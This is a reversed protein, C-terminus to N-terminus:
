PTLPEEQLQLPVREPRPAVALAELVGEGAVVEGIQTFDAWTPAPRLLLVFRPSNWEPTEPQLLLLGARLSVAPAERRIWFGPHGYGTNSPDGLYLAIGPERGYVTMGEYWGQQALVVVANVGQPAWDPRLRIRVTGQPFVLTLIYRTNPALVWPPCTSMTRTRLAHLALVTRLADQTPPGPYWEGNIFVMPVADMGSRYGVEWARMARQRISESTIDQAFRRTDLGVEEALRLLYDPFATPAMARWEPQRSYLRRHYPWFADQRAAAEAAQVAMLAKDHVPALPFHRYVYRVTPYEQLLTWIAADLRACPECQYDGYVVLTIDATKPGYVHDAELLYAASAPTPTPGALVQCAPTPSPPPLTQLYPAPTPGGGSPATPSPICATGLLALFLVGIFRTPTGM